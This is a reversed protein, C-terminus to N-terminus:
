KLRVGYQSYFAEKFARTMTRGGIRTRNAGRGVPRIPSFTGFHFNRLRHSRGLRRMHRDYWKSHKIVEAPSPKPLPISSHLPAQPKRTFMRDWIGKIWSFIGM